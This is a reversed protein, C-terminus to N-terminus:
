SVITVGPHSVQYVPLEGKEGDEVILTHCLCLVMWFDLMHQGLLRHEEM